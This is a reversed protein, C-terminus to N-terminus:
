SPDRHVTQPTFAPLCAAIYEAGDSGPTSYRVWEGAETIIAQGAQVDYTGGEFEVHLSGRLVVTMERFQPRQGPEQWGSPSVMRAISVQDDGSNVKGVFEEIRKPPTGAAEVITPQSILKPMPLSYDLIDAPRASKLVM